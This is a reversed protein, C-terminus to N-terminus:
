MREPASMGLLGLGNALVTRVAGTLALRAGTLATDDENLVRHRKGDQVYPNWLGALDRLWYAVHHPARADAARAVLDPFEGLKRLLAIEEPLALRAGDVGEPAPLPVEREAAQREIGCARAHAYQVYYAPNKSWDTEKALDLQFDLHGEAKREVMFFRFVDVGVEEVLEDTTIFTARRTSQKVTKGGSSLTVFQNMVLEIREPDFGLLGLAARVFPVQDVHDAGM